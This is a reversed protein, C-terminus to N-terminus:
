LMGVRKRAQTADAPAHTRVAANTYHASLSYMAQYWVPNLMYRAHTVADPPEHDTPVVAELAAELMTVAQERLLTKSEYIRALNVLAGVNTGDIRLAEDYLDCAEDVRGLEQMVVGARFFGISRPSAVFDFALGEDKRAAYDIWGAAVTAIQQFVAEPKDEGPERWLTTADAAHRGRDLTLTLGLGTEGNPQLTGNVTYIPLRAVRVVFAVISAVAKFQPALDGLRAITDSVSDTGSSRGLRVTKDATTLRQLANDVLAQIGM